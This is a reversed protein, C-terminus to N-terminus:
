EGNTHAMEEYYYNLDVKSDYHCRVDLLLPTPYNKFLNLAAALQNLDAITLAQVGLAQAFLQWDHNPITYQHEQLELHRFNINANKIAGHAGNNLVLFLVAVNYKAATQIETGNMLMCGDGTICICHKAADALKVGVSAPIAWGM